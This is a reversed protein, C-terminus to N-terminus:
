MNVDTFLNINIVQLPAGELLDIIKDALTSSDVIHDLWRFNTLILRSMELNSTSRFFKRLNVLKFKMIKKLKFFFFNKKIYYFLLTYPTQGVFSNKKITSNM